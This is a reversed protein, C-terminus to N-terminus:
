EGSETRARREDKEGQSRQKGALQAAIGVGPRGERELHLQDEEEESWYAIPSLVSAMTHCWWDQSVELDKHAM